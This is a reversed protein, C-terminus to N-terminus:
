FDNYNYLLKKYKSSFYMNYFGLIYKHFKLTKVVMCYQLGLFCISCYLCILFKFLDCTEKLGSNGKGLPLISVPVIDGVLSHFCRPKVM